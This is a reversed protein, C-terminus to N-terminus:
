RREHMSVKGNELKVNPAKVLDFIWKLIKGIREVAGDDSKTPTLRVIAEASALLLSLAAVMEPWNGSLWSWIDMLWAM